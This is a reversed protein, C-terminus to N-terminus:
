EFGFVCLVFGCGFRRGSKGVRETPGHRHAVSFRRTSVRIQKSVSILLSRILPSVQPFLLGSLNEVEFSVGQSEEVAAGKKQGSVSSSSQAEGLLHSSIGGSCRSPSSLAAGGDACGWLEPTM